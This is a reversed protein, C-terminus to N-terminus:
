RAGRLPRPTSASRGGGRGRLLPARSGGRVVRGPRVGPAPGRTGNGQRGRVRLHDAARGRPTGNARFRWTGSPRMRIRRGPVYLTLRWDGEGPGVGNSLGKEANGDELDDSNFHVAEGGGISLVIPGYPERDDDIADIRVEGADSSHNIVRMFGERHLTDSASPIFPLAQIQEPEKATSAIVYLGVDAAAVVIRARSWDVQEDHEDDLQGKTRRESDDYSRTSRIPGVQEFDSGIPV